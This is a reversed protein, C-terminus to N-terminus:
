SAYREDFRGLRWVLAAGAWAVTFAGVICYGLLEFHEALSAYAAVPGPM